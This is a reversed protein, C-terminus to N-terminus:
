FAHQLRVYGFRGMYDYASPDSPSFGNNYIVPPTHDGVNNVGAALTTRGAPTRLIYNVHVDFTVYPPIERQFTSDQSCLGLGSFDGGSDGCEHFRGIFKSNVGVGLGGLNWTVGTNFKWAPYTGGFAGGQGLDWSGRGHIISGDALTRDYKHLWTGDWLFGFRGYETPYAYRIAVDIGDTEDKGVNQNTNLINSIFGTSKDRTILNCYAQNPTGSAPYCGSLIVDEGVTAISKDVSINYYDVTVTFNKVMTPELVVGFTFIKATEPQLNPNGGVRSRLQNSPDGTGNAPLGQATCNAPPTPGSAAPGRCPDKVSPFNDAQGLFLDSISPARFATSYTGRVTFDRVPTWRGGFKYTWDTGFTSYNFVRAAATVELSQVFPMNSLLPISLEGYGENVYYSGQTIESKNGTTEGANTIPDPIDSGKLTRFEYGLALGLPREGLLRFLEGSTNVNVGALQNIGRRTGTFTLGTTQDGTITGPGHFLDLPVCNAIPAGLTGCTPTGTTPDRFSPGLAAALHPVNLNGHKVEDGQTRGYNFAAEWFWGQLPGFDDSLTGDVGGVVRFTNQDQNFTRNGFELLRRRVQTLDVGFPNYMSAASVTITEGGPGIVLPEPALKQDSQRNVYQAEFFGRAFNGIRTDGAAYASVRQQPTVLYNQPQFNYADGQPPILFNVFPKWGDVCGSSPNGLQAATCLVFSRAKPYATVLDNYVKSATPITVGAQKGTLAIRGQPITSSGLTYQGIQGLPSNDGTADYARPIKSFDREGAWVPQQNYYGASFTINGRDSGAGTTVNLDYTTGDGRQSMGTLANVETQRFNKRTIINVVGAIADSGYVASAGDKLVEIREIAATPITNLDVSSDAGTGGPVMRRGNLLVLTRSSGLGRLSVRTSGDGGNNVSTNIANGQEPLSQLFDGISVKGSAIVQERSIVTVPAPTTLDKRRIRSGTVIITEEAARKGTAEPTATTDPQGVAPTPVGTEAPPPTQGAPRSEQAAAMASVCLGSLLAITLAKTKLLM